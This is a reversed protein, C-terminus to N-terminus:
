VFHDIRLVSGSGPRFKFHLSFPCCDDKRLVVQKTYCNSDVTTLEADEADSYCICKEPGASPTLVFNKYAIKMEVHLICLYCYGSRQRTLFMPQEFIM